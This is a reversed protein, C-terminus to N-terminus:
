GWRTIPQTNTPKGTLPPRNQKVPGGSEFRPTPPPAQPKPPPPPPPPRNM